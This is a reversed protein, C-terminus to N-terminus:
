MNQNMLVNFGSHFYLTAVQEDWEFLMKLVLTVKFPQALTKLNEQDMPGLVEALTHGKSVCAELAEHYTAGTTSFPILKILGNLPVM